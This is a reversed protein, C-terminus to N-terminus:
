DAFTRQELPINAVIVGDCGFLQIAKRAENFRIKAPSYEVAAAILLVDGSHVIEDIAALNLSDGPLTGNCDSHAGACTGPAWNTHPGMFSGEGGSQFSHGPGGGGMM